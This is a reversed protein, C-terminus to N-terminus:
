PNQVTQSVVRGDTYLINRHNRHNGPKDWAIASDTSCETDLGGVFAYSVTNETLKGNSRNTVSSPCVYVSGDTLYHQERLMELGAANNKDPFHGDNDIAYQQLALGIQKLNSSCSIRLAQEFPPLSPKVFRTQLYAFSVALPVVLLFCVFCKQLRVKNQIRATCVSTILYWTLWIPVVYQFAVLAEKELLLLVFYVGATISLFTKLFSPIRIRNEMAIGHFVGCALIWCLFLFFWWRLYPYHYNLTRVSSEPSAFLLPSNVLLMLVSVVILSKRTHVNM